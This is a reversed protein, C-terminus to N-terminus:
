LHLLLQQVVLVLIGPAVQPFRRCKKAPRSTSPGVSDDSESDSDFVNCIARVLADEKDVSPNEVGM